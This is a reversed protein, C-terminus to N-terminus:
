GVATPRAEGPSGERPDSGKRSDPPAENPPPSTPGLEIEDDFEVGYGHGVERLEEDTMAIVQHHTMPLIDPDEEEFDDADEFSDADQAQAAKSVEERIYLKVMEQMTLPKKGPNGALPIGSNVEPTRSRSFRGLLTQLSM